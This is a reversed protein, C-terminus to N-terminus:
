VVSKRDTDIHEAESLIGQLQSLVPDEVADNHHRFKTLFKEARVVWVNARGNVELISQEIDKLQRQRREDGMPTDLQPGDEREKDTVVRNTNIVLIVLGLLGAVLLYEDNIAM